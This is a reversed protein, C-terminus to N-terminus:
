KKKIFYDIAPMFTNSLLIAFMAGETWIGFIRIIITFFGYLAGYIIKGLKTTSSTVPDTIMFFLGFLYGGTLIMYIPNASKGVIYFISSFFLFSILGSLVVQYSAYKKYILYLGIIFILIIFGEGICGAKNGFLFNKIYEINLALDKGKSILEKLPTASTLSDIRYKILAAPFKTLPNVWGSTLYPGFAIYIFARGTIAPNFVNKGFGGFLMKGFVIGFIIGVVSIWFPINPPLTLVYLISTVFVAMSVKQKLLKAFLYESILAFFTTIFFLVLVRIGYFYVGAILLPLLAFFTNLMMPQKLFINNLFGTNNSKINGM